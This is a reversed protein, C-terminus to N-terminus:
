SNECFKLGFIGQAWSGGDENEERRRVGLIEAISESEPMMTEWADEEKDWKSEGEKKM